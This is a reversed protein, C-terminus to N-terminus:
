IAMAKCIADFWIAYGATNLHLRDAYLSSNIRRYGGDETFMQEYVDILHLKPDNQSAVYQKVLNNFEVYREFVLDQFTDNPM